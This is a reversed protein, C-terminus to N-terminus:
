RESAETALVHAEKCNKGEMERDERFHDFYTLHSAAPYDFPLPHRPSLFSGKLIKGYWPFPIIMSLHHDHLFTFLIAGQGGLM